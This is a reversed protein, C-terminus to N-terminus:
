KRLFKQKPNSFEMYMELNLGKQISTLSVVEKPIGVIFSHNTKLDVGVSEYSLCRRQGYLEVDITSVTTIYSILLYSYIKLKNSIHIDLIRNKEKM